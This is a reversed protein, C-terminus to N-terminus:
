WFGQQSTGSEDDSYNSEEDSESDFLGRQAAYRKTYPHYPVFNDPSYPAHDHSDLTKM